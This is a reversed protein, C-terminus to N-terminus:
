LRGELLQRGFARRLPSLSSFLAVVEGGELLPSQPNSLFRIGPFAIRDGRGPTAWEHDLYVGVERQDPRLLHHTENVAESYPIDHVSLTM